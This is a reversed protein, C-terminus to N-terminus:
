FPFRTMLCKTQIHKLPPPFYKHKLSFGLAPQNQFGDDVQALLIDSCKMNQVPLYHNHPLNQVTAPLQFQKLNHILNKLM